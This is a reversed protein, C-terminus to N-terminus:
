SPRYLAQTLNATMMHTNDGFQHELTINVFPSVLNGGALFQTRFQVGMNGVLLDITQASVNFTLLEDGKETYGDVRSHMYTLGAIPSARLSGFDFLYAGRAAAAFSNADTSSRVPDLVGPRALDLDDIGTPWLRRPSCNGPRVYSIYAAVQLTDVDISAGGNLDANAATYNGAVGIILNRNASYRLGSRERHPRSISAWRNSLLPGRQASLVHGHRLSHPLEVSGDATRTRRRWLRPGDPWRCGDHRRLRPRGKDACPMPRGLVSSTFASTTSTAIGPQVAITDPAMVINDMHAAVLAFGANTTSVMPVLIINTRSRAISRAAVPQLAPPPCRFGVFGYRAPDENVKAGLRALDFMFFRVGANALPTLQTQMGESIPKRM